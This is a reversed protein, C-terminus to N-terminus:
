VGGDDDHRPAEVFFGGRLVDLRAGRVVDDLVVELPHTGRHYAGEVQPACPRLLGPRFLGAALAFLPKARQDLVPRVRDGEDGGVPGQQEGAVGDLAQEPERRGLEHTMWIPLACTQVGTVAVDRIGDEAQFFFFFYVTRSLLRIGSREAIM